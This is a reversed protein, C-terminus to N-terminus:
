AQACELKKGTKESGIAMTELALPAAWHAQSPTLV